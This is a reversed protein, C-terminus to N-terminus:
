SFSPYNFSFTASHNTELIFVCVCLAPVLSCERVCTCIVNGLLVVTVQAIGCGFLTTPSTNWYHMVLM